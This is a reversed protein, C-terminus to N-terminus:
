KTMKNMEDYLNGVVAKAYTMVLRFDSHGVIETVVRPAVGKSFMYTIATHRLDHLRSSPLGARRAVDKLWHTVTDRHVPVPKGKSNHHVFTFVPGLDAPKGLAEVAPPLLPVWREKDGKGKIHAAPKEGWSINQWKLGLAERRRVGTWLMFVWLRKKHPDDEKELLRTVQEPELHRPAQRPTRLMEVEPADEVYGWKAATRLAVKIARLDANVGAKSVGRRPKKTVPDLMGLKRRHLSFKGLKKATINRLLCSEGIFESLARLSCDYRKRTGLSVLGEEKELGGLYEIFEQSFRGWKIRSNDLVGLRNSNHLEELEKFIKNAKKQDGTGLSVRKGGLRAYYIKGRKYIGM